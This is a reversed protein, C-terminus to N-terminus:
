FLFITLIWPSNWSLVKCTDQFLAYKYIINVAMTLVSTDDEISIKPILRSIKTYGKTRPNVILFFVLYTYIWPILPGPNIHEAVVKM